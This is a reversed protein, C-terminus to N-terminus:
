RGRWQRRLEARKLMVREHTKSAFFQTMMNKNLLNFRDSLNATEKAAEAERTRNLNLMAPRVKTDWYECALALAVVRDDHVGDPAGISDGDRRIGKMDEISDLSRVHLIGTHVFDRLREMLTIKTQMQTKFHFNHGPGLSDARSYIYTKVNRFINGLAKEDVQPARHVNEVQRRLSNLENFVATGPGNLELIYRVDAQPPGGYWGLLSAIVWALQHTAILPSDYEAVQDIGDAWCRIVQICSHDNKENSGYAPDVGIVYVANQKPPEWVKLELMRTNPAKFVQTHLFDVGCIYTYGEFDKSVNKQTQENLKQNLFFVSGTQQFAEDATWPDEQMKLPDAEFGADTDGQSRASPDIQRRYWALQERTVEFDYQEKVLRIQETEQLTPEMEGYLRWDPSTRSIRQDNRSWWGVFLSGCHEPDDLAERWMGHWLGVYGRATSEWIYLRDVNTQALSKRFSILSEASSSDFSCIESIHAFALGVSRGLTGTSKSRKVGAHKFLIRADNALTLGERNDKKVPPFHLQMPLDSLMTLLEDRATNKNEASDFVLCGPLGRFMGLFFVTMARAITTIGLQRSKLVFINHIDRELCDFVFTIFREQSTYMDKGLCMFGKEKSNIFCYSLFVRFANEYQTRKSKSWGAM